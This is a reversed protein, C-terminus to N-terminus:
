EKIELAARAAINMSFGTLFEDKDISTFIDGGFNTFEGMDVYGRSAGDISEFVVEALEKGEQAQAIGPLVLVLSLALTTLKM